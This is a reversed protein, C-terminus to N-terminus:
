PNDPVLGYVRSRGLKPRRIAPAQEWVGAVYKALLDPLRNSVPAIGELRGLGLRCARSTTM